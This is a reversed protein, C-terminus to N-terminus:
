APTSTLNGKQISYFRCQKKIRKMRALTHANLDPTIINLLIIVPKTSWGKKVLIKTVSKKMNDIPGRRGIIAENKISPNNTAM